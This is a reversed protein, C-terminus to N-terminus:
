RYRTQAEVIAKIARNIELEMGNNIKQAKKDFAELIDLEYVGGREEAAQHMEELAKRYATTARARSESVEDMLAKEKNSTDALLTRATIWARDGSIKSHTLEKVQSKFKSALQDMGSTILNASSRQLSNQVKKELDMRSEPTGSVQYGGNPNRVSAALAVGGEKQTMVTGGAGKPYLTRKVRDDAEAWAKEKELAIQNIQDRQLDSRVEEVKAGFEDKLKKKQQDFDVQLNAKEREIAAKHSAEIAETADKVNKEAQAEIRVRESEYFRKSSEAEQTVKTLEKAYTERITRTNEDVEQQKTANLSDIEGQLRDREKGFEKEKTVAESRLKSLEGQYKSNLTDAIKKKRQTFDSKLQTITNDHASGIDIIAKEYSQITSTLAARHNEGLTESSAIREELGKKITDVEHKAAQYGREEGIEVGKKLSQESRKGAIAAGVGAGVVASGGIAAIVRGSNSSKTQPLAKEVALKAQEIRQSIGKETGWKAAYAAIAGAAAASGIAMVASKLFSGGTKAAVQKNVEPKRPIQTGVPTVGQGPLPRWYGGGNKVRPDEVWVKNGQRKSTKKADRRLIENYSDQYITYLM